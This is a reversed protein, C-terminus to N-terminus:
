PRVPRTDFSQILEVLNGACDRVFLVPQGDVVVEFAIDAGAERLRSTAVPVDPVEFCMHKNGHTRLDLNPERRDAPLPAAGDLQFIEIRFDGRRMFAVHAPIKDVFQQEELRFGLMREYWQIAARLDPVSIGFHHPRLAGVAGHDLSNKM